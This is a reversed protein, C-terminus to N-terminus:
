SDFDDDAAKPLDGGQGQKSGNCLDQFDIEPNNLDFVEIEEQKELFNSEMEEEKKIFEKLKLLRSHLHSISEFEVKLIGDLTEVYGKM